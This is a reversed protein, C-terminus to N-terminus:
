TPEAKPKQKKFYVLLGAAVAAVTAGSVAFVVITKPFITFNVTESDAQLKVRSFPNSWDAYSVVYYSDAELSVKVNHSGETLTLNTSFNLTFTPPTDFLSDIDHVPINQRKGGDVVYYISTINVFSQTGPSHDARRFVDIAFWTEPKIITFNLWVDTSTYTQNQVPSQVVITPLTTVPEHQPFSFLPGPNAMALNVSITVVAASFLLAMVLTLATATRKM